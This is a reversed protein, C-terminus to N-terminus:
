DLTTKMENPNVITRARQRRTYAGRREITEGELSTSTHSPNGAAWQMHQLAGGVQGVM